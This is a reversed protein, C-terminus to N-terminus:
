GSSCRRSSKTADAARPVRGVRHARAAVGAPPPSAIHEIEYAITGCYTERLHPLADALTAGPVYMHLIKAPIQATIAPTLGVAEPDLGPEGEPESGLPDLRAALHGHSRFRTVLTSAAQVAELLEESAPPAARRARRRARPPRRPRRRRPHRPSPDWSSAWRPSRRRTSPTSARCTSRSRRWSGGRSPGRSSGITM